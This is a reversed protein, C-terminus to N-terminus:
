EGHGGSIRHLLEDSLKLGSLLLAAASAAICYDESRPSPDGFEKEFIQWNQAWWGDRTKMNVIANATDAPPIRLKEAIKEAHLKRNARQSIFFEMWFQIDHFRKTKGGPKRYLAAPIAHGSNGHVFCNIEALWTDDFWFPFYETFIQGSAEYWKKTLIPMICSQPMNWWLLANYFHMSATAIIDDWDVTQILMRDTLPLYVDAIEDKALGNIIAGLTPERRNKYFEVNPYFGCIFSMCEEYSFDDEDLAIKIKIEHKGSALYMASTIVAILGGPNGRSAMIILLKM